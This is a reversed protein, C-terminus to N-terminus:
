GTIKASARGGPFEVVKDVLAATLYDAWAQLAATREKLYVARNYVGAVGRKAAGSVHNIIAEVIHPPIKLDDNLATVFSRRIDHVTYHPMPAAKPDVKRRVELIRQDLRRKCRSWGSFAADGREGFIYQGRDPQARIIEVVQRSLPVLHPLKNKTRSGPLSWLAKELDLESRRMGGVEGKRQGTLWLVQIIANYAGDGETATLIEQREEPTHVRDRGNGEEHPKRTSAVVNVEILDQDVAWEFLEHLSTRSRNAAVPGNESKIELLRAAIEGKRIEVLPRPHLPLWHKRLHREIEKLTRPRVASAKDKLYLEVVGGLNTAKVTRRTQRPDHGGAIKALLDRTAARAMALDLGVDDKLTIKATKGNIRTRVAFARAGTPQVILRLQPYLHDSRETTKSPDPRLKDVTQQTLAKRAM